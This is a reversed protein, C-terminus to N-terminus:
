TRGIHLRFISRSRQNPLLAGVQGKGPQSDNGLLRNARASPSETGGREIGNFGTPAVEFSGQPRAKQNYTAVGANREGQFGATGNLEGSNSQSDGPQQSRSDIKRKIWALLADQNNLAKVSDAPLRQIQDKLWQIM